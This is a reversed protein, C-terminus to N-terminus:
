VRCSSTDLEKCIKLLSQAVFSAEDNSMLQHCPISLEAKYFEETNKLEQVGYKDQYLKFKYTPKYHVQTIIGLEKLRYYLEEKACHMSPHLLVSYLHRSSTVGNALSITSFYPNAKFKDDYFAAIENRRKIAEDLRSLQSLGLACAVDSLRYNYGLVSMESDWASKRQIGHSRILRVKQAIDDDNTVVAGGELTTIPKIPHFSFVSAKALSGVKLNQELVNNYISNNNINNKLAWASDDDSYRSGLAHSADNLLPIGHKQAIESLDKIDIPTGGLDVAVIAKTRPSIAQAIKKPDLNGNFKIDSFRVDAGCMLAANATAAFTIPTTIIEDDAGIDCALYLAHLASTASNLVVAHKVGVYNALASEFRETIEGGTLIDGKLAESVADIDDQTISQRSYPIM